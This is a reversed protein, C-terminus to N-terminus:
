QSTEKEGQTAFRRGYLRYDHSANRHFGFSEYLARSVHNNAQTSLGVRRAGAAVMRAVAYELAVRGLGGGQAAPSVAIRDLHGWTRLKTYGVYALPRGGNDFAIEIEVGPAAAYNAFEAESNRWLWPFAENDLELLTHHSGPQHIDIRNFVPILPRHRPPRLHHMEYIIIEEIAEFGVAGYFQEKRRESREPVLVLEVGREEATQAFAQVLEVAGGVAAIDVIELIETRHRWPGGVVYEGTRANWLSLNAPSSAIQRLDTLTHRADWSQRLRGVDEPALLRIDGGLERQRIYDIVETM